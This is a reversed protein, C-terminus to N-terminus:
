TVEKGNGKPILNNSKLWEIADYFETRDIDLKKKHWNERAELVISDKSIAEKRIILNNWASYTTAVVEARHTTEFNTFLSIIRKIEMLHVNLETIARLLFPMFNEGKVYKHSIIGNQQHNEEVIFWKMRIAKPEVIKVLHEFAAPGAAMKHAERGLELDIHKEVVEVIKEGKTRYLNKLKKEHAEMALVIIMAQKDSNKKSYIQKSKLIYPDEQIQTSLQVTKVRRLEGKFASDLVSKKLSQLQELKNQYYQTLKANKNLLTDLYAVICHQQDITPLPLIIQGLKKGNVNPQAAGVSMENIQKWYDPSQFFLYLFKPIIMDNKVKVRILYSAFISKVNDNFLYSKGSTAGTRAFVIDGKKLEYKPVENSDIDSFPTQEWNVTQDQIDTIRLYYFDGNIKTKGTYGYQIKKSLSEVSEFQTTKSLRGFVDNFASENLKKIKDINEQVLAIANDVKVFTADLVKVIKQQEPLPPLPFKIERLYNQSINPQAGGFSDNIIKDRKLLLYNFLYKKSIVQEHNFIACIAQNTSSNFNLFGLKGATAGYLAILLTGREFLKASSNRLGEETIFESNSYIIDDTLEGSKLWPIKGGWYEKISRNPTGGSTTDAVDGLKKWEWGIPLNNSQKM